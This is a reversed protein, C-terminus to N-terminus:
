LHVAPEFGAREAMKERGADCQEPRSKPNPAKRKGTKGRKLKERRIRNVYEVFHISHGGTAPLGFVPPVSRSVSDMGVPTTQFIDLSDAGM